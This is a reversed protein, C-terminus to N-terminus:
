YVDIGQINTELQENIMSCLEGDDIGEPRTYLEIENSGYVVGSYEDDGVTYTFDLICGTGQEYVVSANTLEIEVEVETTVTVKKTFTNM